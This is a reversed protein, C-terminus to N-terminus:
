MLLKQLFPNPKLGALARTMFRMLCVTGTEPPLCWQVHVTHVCWVTLSTLEIDGTMDVFLHYVLVASGGNLIYLPGRRYNLLRELYNCTDIQVTFISLLKNWFFCIFLSFVFCLM